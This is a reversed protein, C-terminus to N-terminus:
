GQLMYRHIYMYMLTSYKGMYQHCDFFYRILDKCASTCKGTAAVRGSYQRSQISVMCVSGVQQDGNVRTGAVVSM